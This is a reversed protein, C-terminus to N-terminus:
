CKKVVDPLIPFIELCAGLASEVVSQNKHVLSM